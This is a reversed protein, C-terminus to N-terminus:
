DALATRLAEIAKPDREARLDRLLPHDDDVEAIGVEDRLESILYRCTDGPHSDPYVIVSVQAYKSPIPRLGLIDQRIGWESSTLKDHAEDVWLHILESEMGLNNPRIRRIYRTVAARIDEVSPITVAPHYGHGIFDAHLQGTIGAAIWHGQSCERAHCENITSLAMTYTYKSM